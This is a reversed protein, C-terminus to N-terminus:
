RFRQGEEVLDPRAIVLAQPELGGVLLLDGEKEEVTVNKFVM